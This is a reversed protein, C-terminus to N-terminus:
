NNLIFDQFAKSVNRFDVIDLEGYKKVLDTKAIFAVKSVRAYSPELLNVEKWKFIPIDYKDRAGHTTVKITLVKLTEVDMIICPRKKSQTEDDEFPFNVEWVEGVNM